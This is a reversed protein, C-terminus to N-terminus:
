EGQQQRRPAPIEHAAFWGEVADQVLQALEEIDAREAGAGLFHEALEECALDYSYAPKKTDATQM